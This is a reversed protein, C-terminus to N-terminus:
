LPQRHRCHDFAGEKGGIMRRTGSRSIRVTPPLDRRTKEMVNHIQFVDPQASINAKTLAAGLKEGDRLRITWGGHRRELDTVEADLRLVAGAARAGKLFGGHIAAVGLAEEHV